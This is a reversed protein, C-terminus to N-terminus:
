GAGIVAAAPEHTQARLHFLADGCGGSCERAHLVSWRWLVLDVVSVPEGLWGGIEACLEDASQRSTARALRTLHRDPKAVPIGINKALHRWTVPGIYPLSRLFQEPASMLAARLGEPGIRSVIEAIEIVADIKREHGFVSLAAVRAQERRALLKSPDFGHMAAELPGFVVRLVLESMGASLVVWAAERVFDVPEHTASGRSAQWAIEYAFGRDIIARKAALYARVM